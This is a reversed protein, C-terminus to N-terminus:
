DERKELCKEYGKILDRKNYRIIQESTLQNFIDIVNYVIEDYANAVFVEVTDIDTTIFLRFRPWGMQIPICSNTIFLDSDLPAVSNYLQFMLSSDIKYHDKLESADLVPYYTIYLSDNKVEYCRWDASAIGSSLPICLDIDLIRQGFSLSIQFLLFIIIASIRM